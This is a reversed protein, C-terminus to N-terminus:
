GLWNFSNSSKAVRFPHLALNSMVTEHHITTLPTQQQPLV